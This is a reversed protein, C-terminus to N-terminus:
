ALWRQGSLKGSIIYLFDLPCGFKQLISFSAGSLITQWVMMAFLKTRSAKKATSNPELPYAIEAQV